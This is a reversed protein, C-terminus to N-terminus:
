LLALFFLLPLFFLLLTLLTLHLLYTSISDLGTFIRFFSNNLPLFLLLLGVFSLFLQRM